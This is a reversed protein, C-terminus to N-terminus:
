GLTVNEWKAIAQLVKTVDSLNVADDGNVNAATENFDALDWKAIFQLMKSVDSLNVAGDNNVDGYTVDVFDYDPTWIEFNDIAIWSAAVNSGNWILFPSKQSGVTPDVSNQAIHGVKDDTEDVQSSLVLKQEFYCEIKGETVKIGMEYFPADEGVELPNDLKDEALVTNFAHSQLVGYEDHYKYDAGKTLRVAGTEVEVVFEYTAGTLLSTDTPEGNEFLDQYWIRVTHPETAATLDDFARIQFDFKGYFKDWMMGFKKTFNSQLVRADHYGQVCKNYKDYEFKCGNSEGVVWNRPLFGDDFDDSFVLKGAGFSVTSLVSLLMVATLVFSIIKKM